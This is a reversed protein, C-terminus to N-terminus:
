PHVGVYIALRDIGEYVEYDTRFRRRPADEAEFYRWVRSWTEMFTDSFRGRAHFVLYEGAEIVVTKYPEPVKREDGVEVGALVCYDGDPGDRYDSYVGYVPSGAARDPIRQALSEGTFGEWLRDLRASDPDLEADHNTRIQIGAIVRGNVRCREPTPHRPDSM